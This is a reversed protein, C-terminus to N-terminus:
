AVSTNAVQLGLSQDISQGYPVCESLLALLKLFLEEDHPEVVLGDSLLVELLVHVTHRDSVDGDGSVGVAGRVYVVRSLCFSQVCDSCLAVSHERAPWKFKNLCKRDRSTPVSNLHNLNRLLGVAADPAM